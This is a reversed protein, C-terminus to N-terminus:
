SAGGSPSSGTARVGECTRWHGPLQVWRHARHHTTQACPVVEDIQRRLNDFEPGLNLLKAAHLAEFLESPSLHMVLDNPSSLGDDGHMARLVPALRDAVADYLLEAREFDM